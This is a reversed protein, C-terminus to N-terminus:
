RYVSVIARMDPHARAAPRLFGAVARKECLDVRGDRRLTGLPFGEDARPPAGEALRALLPDLAAPDAPPVDPHEIAPCRVPAPAM